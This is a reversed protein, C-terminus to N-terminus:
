QNEKLWALVEVPHDESGKAKPWHMVIKGDPDIVFTERSIGMFKRGMFSKEGWVGYKEAVAHDEDALLVHQLGHKEAFKKKSKSDLISISMVVANAKEFDKLHATFGCSEKTCGPTSDKPYFFLVVYRGKYESLKHTKGDQDPLTFPPAKKNILTATTSDTAKSM